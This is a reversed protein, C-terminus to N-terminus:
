QRTSNAWDRRAFVGRLVKKRIGCWNTEQEVNDDIRWLVQAAHKHCLSHQFRNHPNPEPPNSAANRTRARRRNTIAAIGWADLHTAALVDENEIRPGAQAGEADFKEPVVLYAIDINEDRM